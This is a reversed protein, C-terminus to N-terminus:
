GNLRSGQKVYTTTFHARRRSYIRGSHSVPFFSTCSPRPIVSFPSSDRNLATASVIITHLSLRSNNRKKSAQVTLHTESATTFPLRRPKPPPPTSSVSRLGRENTKSIFLAPSAPHPGFVRTTQRACPLHPCEVPPPWRPQALVLV